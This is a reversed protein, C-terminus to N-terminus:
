LPEMEYGLRYQLMTIGGKLEDKMCQSITKLEKILILFFQNDYQDTQAGKEIRSLLRKFKPEDLVSITSHYKQSIAILADYDDDRYHEYMKHLVVGSQEMILDFTRILYDKEHENLHVLEGRKFNKHNIQSQSGQSIRARKRQYFKKM